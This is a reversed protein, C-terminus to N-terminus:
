KPKRRRPSVQMCIVYMLLASFLLWSVFYTAYTDLREKMSKIKTGLMDEQVSTNEITNQHRKLLGEHARKVENLKRQVAYNDRHSGARRLQEEAQFPTAAARL